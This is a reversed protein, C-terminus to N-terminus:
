QRWLARPRLVDGRGGIDGDQSLVHICAIMFEREGVASSGSWGRVKRWLRVRGVRVHGRRGRRVEGILWRGLAVLVLVVMYCRLLTSTIRRLGAAGEM